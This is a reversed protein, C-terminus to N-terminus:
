GTTQNDHYGDKKDVLVLSKFHKKFLEIRDEIDIGDEQPINLSRNLSNNSDFIAWSSNMCRVNENTKNIILMDGYDELTLEDKFSEDHYLVYLFPDWHKGNLSLSTNMMFLEYQNQKVKLQDNRWWYVGSKGERMGSYKIFYYRWDKKTAPNSLYDSISKEIFDTFDDKISDLLQLLTEKTEDFNKRQKSVTFLERWTSDNDNGFLFRWSALQSYDNITLIAKSINVYNIEGNFLKRFNSGRLRFNDPEELGIIAVAGQLLFHDELQNLEETLIPNIRRWDNKSIEENKQFENYGLTKLSIEGDVIINKTDYLLAQMRTERIEDPSNMILNRIIRIRETFETNAISDKNLLYQLVAYLLLSNNLTFKRREGAKIGYDNCCLLFLDTKESFINVKSKEYHEKSFINDFFNEISAIKGWCDFSRFLFKLNLIANENQSGYVITAMDFDNEVITINNEFCITETIFRYYRMFEDDILNDDGRYKWLTDVWDIDVKLAFEKHLEHSVAKIIKEFEAKFHEFETLPKGRSNM